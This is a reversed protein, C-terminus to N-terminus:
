IKADICRLYSLEAGINPRADKKRTAWENGTQDQGPVVDCLVGDIIPYVHGYNPQGPLQVIRIICDYGLAACVASILITYDVCNARQDKLTRQPTKIAQRAPPDTEFYALNYAMEAVIEPANKPSVNNSIAGVIYKVAPDTTMSERVVEVMARQVEQLTRVGNLLQRDGLPPIIRNSNSM